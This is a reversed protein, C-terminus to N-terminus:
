SGGGLFLTDLDNLFTNSIAAIIALRGDLMVDAVLLYIAPHFSVLLKPFGTELITAASALCILLRAALDLLELDFHSLELM